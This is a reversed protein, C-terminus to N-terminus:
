APYFGSFIADNVCLIGVNQQRTHERRGMPAHKCSYQTKCQIRYELKACLHTPAHVTRANNNHINNQTNNNNKHNHNNIMTTTRARTIIAIITTIRIPSITIMTVIITMTQWNLHYKSKKNVIKKHIDKNNNNKNNDNNRWSM